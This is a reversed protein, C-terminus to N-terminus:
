ATRKWVYVALFPPMTNHASGADAKTSNATNTYCGGSSGNYDAVAGGSVDHTHSPVTHTHAGTNSGITALTTSTEGGTNPTNRNSGGQANNQKYHFTITHSHGGSSSISCSGGNVTPQTFTHGHNITHTHGNLGHSHSPVGSEDGSLTHSAEGGSGGPAVSANSKISDGTAGNDTAALLFKGEIREWTGGFIVNPSVDSVAMYISGVPYILNLLTAGIGDSRDDIEDLQEITSDALDNIEGSLRNVADTILTGASDSPVSINGTVVAGHNKFMVIVRDGTKVDVTTTVPTKIASGDLVVYPKNNEVFAVGYMHSESNREKKHSTTSAFKKIISNSIAM